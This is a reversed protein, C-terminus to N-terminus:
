VPQGAGGASAEMGAGGGGIRLRPKEIVLKPGEYLRNVVASRRLTKLEERFQDYHARIRSSDTEAAALRFRTRTNRLFYERFNYSAFSRSVRLLDAYLRLRATRSPVSM